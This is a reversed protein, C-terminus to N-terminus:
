LSFFPSTIAFAESIQYHISKSIEYHRQQLYLPLSMLPKIIFLNSVEYHLFQLDFSMPM